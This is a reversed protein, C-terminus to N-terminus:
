RFLRLRFSMIYFALIRLMVLLGLLFFFAMQYNAREMDLDKLLFKPRSRHCYMENCELRERDYGFIALMAGDLSYKLFSVDFMWRLYFPADKEQLFFGSFTLFPCIFFPGLIAGLNLSLAAGVALGISQAVLATMFVILFFMGFRWLELPQNTMLYTPVIFLSSCIIQIPLDALTIAVYYARLSYWRNFHERSVIPFELPFKVLIGSFACYMIFMITYFIYRFINLSHHADNGINRYIFGILLGIALHIGFRMTTLSSDRWILLFTRLLLISLQRYFPTAYINERKCLHAPDLDISPMTPRPKKKKKPKCCNGESESTMGGTQSDWIRSSLENIPTLPKFNFNRSPLPGPSMVPATVPTILGSSMMQEVKKMAALQAVRASKSQRYDDNRGNDMLAILKDVQREDDTDYDHTAIEMLYDAPNYSEPCHLNLAGLFPVLNHAGGAYICQGDAIAYLHDFMSFTLASPQHITCIVNRGEMALKKLLTILQNCTSSDLGSTPEDLVLVPPNNVLELAIALRKRQGGSLKGTHTNRTEYMGIAQLISNVRERKSASSMHPGIKLNAAFHMAEKVSLFAQLTTDQTIYAVNPKFAKLDRPKGNIRFDGTYGKYIYGSLINLLTSKGAGSPGAIANLEGSRFYGTLGLLIDKNERKFFGFRSSYRVNDFQIDIKKITKYQEHPFISGTTSNSHSTSSTATTSNNGINMNVTSNSEASVGAVSGLPTGYNSPTTSLAINEEVALPAGHLHRDPPPTSPSAKPTIQLTLHPPRKSALKKSPVPTTPRGTTFTSTSTTAASTATIQTDSAAAKLNSLRIVDGGGTVTPSVASALSWSSM